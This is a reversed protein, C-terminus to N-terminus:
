GTSSHQVVQQILFAPTSGRHNAVQQRAGDLVVRFEDCVMKRVGRSISSFTSTIKGCICSDMPGTPTPSWIIKQRVVMQPDSCRKIRKKLNKQILACAQTIKIVDSGEEIEFYDYGAPDVITMSNGSQGNFYIMYKNDREPKITLQEIKQGLKFPKRNNIWYKLKHSHLYGSGNQYFIKLFDNVISKKKLKLNIPRCLFAGLHHFEIDLNIQRTTKTDWVLKKGESEIAM